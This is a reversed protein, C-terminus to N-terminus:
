PAAREPRVRGRVSDYGPLVVPTASIWCRGEGRYRALLPDSKRLPALVGLPEGGAEVVLEAVVLRSEVSRWADEAVFWPAVVLVRRFGGTGMGTGLTRFPSCGSGSMAGRAGHAGLRTGRRPGDGEGRHVAHRVMAAVKVGRTGDLALPGDDPTRLAYAAWM